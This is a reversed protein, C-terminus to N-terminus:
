KLTYRVVVPNKKQWQSIGCDFTIGSVITTDNIAQDMM